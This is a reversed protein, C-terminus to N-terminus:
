AETESFGSDDVDWSDLALASVVFDWGEDSLVIGSDGGFNFAEDPWAWEADVRVELSERLRAGFGWPVDDVDEVVVFVEVWAEGDSGV